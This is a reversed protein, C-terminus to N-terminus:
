FLRHHYGTASGNVLLEESFVQIDVGMIRGDLIDISTHLYSADLVMITWSFCQNQLGTCLTIGINAM